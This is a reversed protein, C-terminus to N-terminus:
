AFKKRLDAIVEEAPRCLELPTKDGEELLELHRKTLIFRSKDRYELYNIFDIIEQSYSDDLTTLREHIIDLTPAEM